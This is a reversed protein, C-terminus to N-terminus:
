WGSDVREATNILLQLRRIECFGSCTAWLTNCYDTYWCIHMRQMGCHLHHWHCVYRTYLQRINYYCRCVVANIQYKISMDARLTIRKLNMYPTSTIYSPGKIATNHKPNPHLYISPSPTWLVWDWFIDVFVKLNVKLFELDDSEDLSLSSKSMTLHTAM